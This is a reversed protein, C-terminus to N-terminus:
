IDNSIIEYGLHAKSILDSLDTEFIMVGSSDEKIQERLLITKELLDESLIELDSVNMPEIKLSLIDALPLRNYNFGWLIILM